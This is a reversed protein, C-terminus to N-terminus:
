FSMVALSFGMGEGIELIDSIQGMVKKKGMAKKIGM